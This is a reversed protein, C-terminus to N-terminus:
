WGQDDAYLDLRREREEEVAPLDLITIKGSKYEILGRKSWDRLLPNVWERRAGVLSALDTQNMSLNFEYRKGPVIENRLVEEYHLFTHLSRGATDHQAIAEAYVTTWRLKEVLLRHAGDDARTNRPHM